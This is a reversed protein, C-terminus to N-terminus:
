YPAWIFSTLNRLLDVELIYLFYSYLDPRLKTRRQEIRGQPGHIHGWQISWKMRDTAILILLSPPLHFVAPSYNTATPTSVCLMCIERLKPIGAPLLTLLILTESCNNQEGYFKYCMSNWRRYPCASWNVYASLLLHTILLQVETETNGPKM